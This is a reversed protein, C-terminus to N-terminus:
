DGTRGRIRKRFVQEGGKKMEEKEREGRGREGDEHEVKRDGTIGEEEERGGMGQGMAWKM